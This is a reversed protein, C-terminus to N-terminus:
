SDWDYIFFADNDIEVFRNLDDYTGRERTRNVRVIERSTESGREYM